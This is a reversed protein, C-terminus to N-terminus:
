LALSWVAEGLAAAQQEWALALLAAQVREHALQAPGEAWVLVWFRVEVWATRM